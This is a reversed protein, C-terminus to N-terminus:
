WMSDLRDSNCESPTSSWVTCPNQEDILIQLYIWCIAALIILPIAKM